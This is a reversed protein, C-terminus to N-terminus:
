LKPRTPEIYFTPILKIPVTHRLEYRAAEGHPTGDHRNMVSQLADKAKEWDRMGRRGSMPETAAYDYRMTFLNFKRGKQPKPYGRRLCNRLIWQYERLLFKLRLLEAMTLDYNAAWREKAFKESNRKGALAELQSIANDVLQAAKKGQNLKYETQVKLRDLENLWPWSGNRPTLKHFEKFVTALTKRLRSAEVRQEYVQPLDWEPQIKELKEEDYASPVESLIFFIGGTQHALMSQVYCGFGSLVHGWTPILFWEPRFWEQGASEIGRHVTGWPGLREGNKDRLWEPVTPSQFASERGFVFLRTKQRKMTDLVALMKDRDRVDSGEEDTVVVVFMRKGLAGLSKMVFELAQIINEKGTKDTQIRNSLADLVEDLNGTPQLVLTPKEGYSVVSWKLRAAERPTMEKRLDGITKHIQKGIIVRDELLSQSEDFLMVVLLERRQIEKLIEEALADVVSRVDFPRSAGVKGLLGTLNGASADFQEGEGRGLLSAIKSLSIPEVRLVPVEGAVEELEAEAEAQVDAVEESTEDFINRQTVPREREMVEVFETNILIERRKPPITTFNIAALIIILILHIVASVVWWPAQELVQAFSFEEWIQRYEM